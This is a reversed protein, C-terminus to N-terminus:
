QQVPEESAGCYCNGRYLWYQDPGRIITAFTPRGKVHSVPEGIQVMGFRYTAPPLVTLFYDALEEDVRDGVELYRALDLRSANWGTLTKVPAQDDCM